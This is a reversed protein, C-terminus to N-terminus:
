LARLLSGSSIEKTCDLIDPATNKVLSLSNLMITHVKNLVYLKDKKIKDVNSSIIKVKPNGYYNIGEYSMVDFRDCFEFTVSSTHNNNMMEM